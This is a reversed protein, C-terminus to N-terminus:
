GGNVRREVSSSSCGCADAIRAYTWGLRRLRAMEACQQDSFRVAARRRKIGAARSVKWVTVLSVRLLKACANGSLGERRLVVIQQRTEESIPRGSNLVERKLAGGGERMLRPGHRAILDLCRQATTDSDSLHSIM